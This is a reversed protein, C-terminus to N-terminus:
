HEVCYGAALVTSGHCSGRPAPQKAPLKRIVNPVDAKAFSQALILEVERKSKFRAEELLRMHNELTLVPALLKIASLHLEGRQVMRLVAPFERVVRAARIRTFAEAESMHLARVCYDFTSGYAHQRCLGRVDFEALHVLLRATLAHDRCLLHKLQDILEEDSLEKM